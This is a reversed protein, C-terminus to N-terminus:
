LAGWIAMQGVCYILNGPLFLALTLIFFVALTLFLAKM